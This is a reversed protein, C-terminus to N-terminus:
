PSWETEAALIARTVTNRTNEYATEHLVAGAELDDELGTDVLDDALYAVYPWSTVVVVRVRGDDPRLEPM